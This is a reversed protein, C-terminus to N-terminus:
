SKHANYIAQAQAVQPILTTATAKILELLTIKTGDARTVVENLISAGADAEDFTQSFFNGPNGNTDLQTIAITFGLTTPGAPSPNNQTLQFNCWVSM